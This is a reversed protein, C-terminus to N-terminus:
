GKILETDLDNKRLRDDFSRGWLDTLAVPM